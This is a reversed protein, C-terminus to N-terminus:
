LLASTGGMIVLKIAIAVVLGLARSIKRRTIARKVGEILRLLQIFEKKSFIPQNGLECVENLEELKLSAGEYKFAEVIEAINQFKYLLDIEAKTSTKALIEVKRVKLKITGDRLVQKKQEESMNNLNRHKVIDKWTTTPLAGDETAAGPLTACSDGSPMSLPTMKLMESIPKGVKTAGALLLDKGGKLLYDGAVASFSADMTSEGVAGDAVKESDSFMTKILRMDREYENDESIQEMTNIDKYKEPLTVTPGSPPMSSTDTYPQTDQSTDKTSDNLGLNSMMLKKKQNELHRKNGRRAHAINPYDPQHKPINEKKDTEESNQYGITEAAYGASMVFNARARFMSRDM